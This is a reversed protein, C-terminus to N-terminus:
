VDDTAERDHCWCECYRRIGVMRLYGDCVDHDGIDLEAEACEDSVFVGQNIAQINHVDMRETHRRVM